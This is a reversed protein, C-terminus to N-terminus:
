EATRPEYRGVVTATRGDQELFSDVLILRFGRLESEALTLPSRLVRVVEKWVALASSLGPAEHDTARDHIRISVSGRNGRRGFTSEDNETQGGLVIWTGTQEADALTDFVKRGSAGATLLAMLTSDGTLRDHLADRVEAAATSTSM